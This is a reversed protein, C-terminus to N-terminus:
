KMFRKGVDNNYMDISSICVSYVAVKVFVTSFRCDTDISSIYVSHVADNYM